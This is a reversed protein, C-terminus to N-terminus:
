KFFLKNKTGRRWRSPAPLLLSLVQHCVVPGALPLSAPPARTRPPLRGPPSPSLRVRPAGPRGHSHAGLTYHNGARSCPPLQEPCQHPAAGPPRARSGEKNMPPPFDPRGRLFDCCALRFAVPPCSPSWAASTGLSWVSPSPNLSFGAKPKARGRCGGGTTGRAETTSRNTMRPSARRVSGRRRWCAQGSPADPKDVPAGRERQLELLSFVVIALCLRAAPTRGPLPCGPVERPGGWRVVVSPGAHRPRCLRCALWM